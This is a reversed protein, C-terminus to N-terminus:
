RKIMGLDRLTGEIQRHMDGILVKLDNSGMYKGEWENDVLEKKWESSESLRSLRTEWYAVQEPVMGKPGIIARYKNLVSKLGIERFTPVNAFSGGLREMSIMALGRVQGSNLYPIVVSPSVVVSDIHGGLLASLSAGGSNFAVTRMKRIDVGAEKLPIVIALHNAGGATNSVGLSVSAPDKQLRDVFDRVSKIQSDPRVILATYENILLSVPTVDAPGITSQGTIQGISLSITGIKLYHGDGTHQNLYSLAVFNNGGPKNLVTTTASVTRQVLFNKQIVRALKDTASGAASGVIIEVNKTPAWTAQAACVAPLLWWLVVLSLLRGNRSIGLVRIM